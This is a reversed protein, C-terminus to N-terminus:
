IAEGARMRQQSSVYQWGAARRMESRVIVITTLEVDFGDRQMAEEIARNTWSLARHEEIWRRVQQRKTERNARAAVSDVYVLYTREARYAEVKGKRILMQLSKVTYGFTKAADRITMAKRGDVLIEPM